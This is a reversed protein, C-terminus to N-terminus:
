KIRVQILRAAEPIGARFCRVVDRYREYSLLSEM